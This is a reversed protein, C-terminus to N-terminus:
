DTPECLEGRVISVVTRQLDSVRKSPWVHRARVYLEFVVDGIYAESITSRFSSHTPCLYSQKDVMTACRRVSSREM